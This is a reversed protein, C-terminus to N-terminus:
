ETGEGLRKEVAAEFAAACDGILSRFEALTEAPLRLEALRAKMPAFARAYEELMIEAFERRMAEVNADIRQRQLEIDARLKELRASALDERDAPTKPQPNRAHDLVGRVRCARGAKGNTELRGASVAQRVAERTIGNRRAYESQTLWRAAM